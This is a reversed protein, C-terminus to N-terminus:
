GKQVYLVTEDISTHKEVTCFKDEAFRFFHIINECTTVQLKSYVKANEHLM